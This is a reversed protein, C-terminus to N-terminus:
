GITILPRVAYANSAFDNGAVGSGHARAFDASSAVARLWFGFRGFYVYNVFKFLPLQSCGEGVDYFSSSLVTSGYVQVETLLTCYASTWAWNNSAGTWGAGAGSAISTSMSNSLLVRRELLHSGLANKLNNAVTVLTTKHMKSGAYGGATTNTDNMPATFLYTQPILSIHHTTLGTDGKNFETDFGAVVWKANYTGDQITVTDGVYIDNFTGDSNIHKAIWEDRNSSTITGLDRHKYINNFVLDNNLKTFQSNYNLLLQKLNTFITKFNAAPVIANTHTANSTYPDAEAETADTFGVTASDPDFPELFYPLSEYATSGDGMKIRGAGTGTGADPVEFFVEGRKLPASATLQAIATAKKGRRPRLYSAM